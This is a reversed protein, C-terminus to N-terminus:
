SINETFLEHSKMLLDHASGGGHLQKIKRYSIYEGPIMKLTNGQFM